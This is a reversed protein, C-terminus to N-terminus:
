QLLDPEPVGVAGLDRLLTVTQATRRDADGTLEVAHEMAAFCVREESTLSALFDARAQEFDIKNFEGNADRVAERLAEVAKHHVAVIKQPEVM